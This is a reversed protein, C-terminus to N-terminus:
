PAAHAPRRPLVVVGCQGRGVGAAARGAPPGSWSRTARTVTTHVTCDVSSTGLLPIDATHLQGSFPQKWAPVGSWQIGGDDFWGIRADHDDMKTLDAEWVRRTASSIATPAGPHLRAADAIMTQRCAPRPSHDVVGRPGGRGPLNARRRLWHPKRRILCTVHPRTSDVGRQGRPVDSASHRGGGRHSTLLCHGFRQPQHASQGIPPLPREEQVVRPGGISSWSLPALQLSIPPAIRTILLQVGYKDSPMARRIARRRARSRAARYPRPPPLRWGVVVAAPNARQRRCSTLPWTRTRPRRRTPARGPGHPSFPRARRRCPPRCCVRDGRRRSRHGAGPSSGCWRRRCCRRDHPQLTISACERRPCAGKDGSDSLCLWSMWM